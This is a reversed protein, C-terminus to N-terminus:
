RGALRVALVLYMVLGVPIAFIWTLVLVLLWLAFLLAGLIPVEWLEVLGGGDNAKAIVAFPLLHLGERALPFLLTQPIGFVVAVVIGEAPGVGAWVAAVLLVTLPLSLLISSVLRTHRLFMWPGFVATAFGPRPGYSPPRQERPSYPQGPPPQQPPQQQQPPPFQQHPQPLGYPPPQHPAPRQGPPGQPQGRSPDRGNM